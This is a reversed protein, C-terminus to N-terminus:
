NQVLEIREIELKQKEKLVAKFIIKDIDNRIFTFKKLPIKAKTNIFHKNKELNIEAIRPIIIRVDNINSEEGFNIELFTELPNFEKLSIPPFSIAIRREKNNGVIRLKKENDFSKKEDENLGGVMIKNNKLGNYILERMAINKHYQVGINLSNRTGNKEFFYLYINNHGSELNFLEFTENKIFNLEKKRKNLVYYAKSILKPDNVKLNLMIKNSDNRLIQLPYDKNNISIKIKQNLDNNNIINYMFDSLKISINLNSVPNPHSNDSELDMQFENRLMGTESDALYSFYDFVFLNKRNELYDNSSLWSAFEKARKSEESNTARPHLPPQTLFVFIKNPYKDVIKRISFYHKKYNYISRRSSNKLDEDINDELIKNSPFCSKTIIIEFENFINNLISKNIDHERLLSSLGRPTTDDNPIHLNGSKRGESDTLGGTVDNYDQDWLEIGIDLFLKKLNGDQILNRGVSHHIFLAKRNKVFESSAIALNIPFIILILIYTLLM